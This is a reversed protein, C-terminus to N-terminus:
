SMPNLVGVLNAVREDGTWRRINPGFAAGSLIGCFVEVMVALGYGKFGGSLFYM